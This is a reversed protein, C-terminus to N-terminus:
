EKGTEEGNGVIKCGSFCSFINQQHDLDGFSLFYHTLFVPDFRISFLFVFSFSTFYAVAVFLCFQCKQASFLSNAFCVNYAGVVNTACSYFRM